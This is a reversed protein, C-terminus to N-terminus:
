GLATSTTFFDLSRLNSAFGEYREPLFIRRYNLDIIRIIKLDAELHDIIKDYEGHEYWNKVDEGSGQPKPVEIGARRAIEVLYELKLGKFKM